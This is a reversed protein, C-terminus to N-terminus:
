TLFFFFFFLESIFFSFHINRAGHSYWIIQATKKTNLDTLDRYPQVCTIFSMAKNFHVICVLTHTTYATLLHMKLPTCPHAPPPTYVQLSLPTKRREKEERVCATTHNNTSMLSVVTFVCNYTTQLVGESTKLQTELERCGNVQYHADDTECKSSLFLVSYKLVYFFFNLFM